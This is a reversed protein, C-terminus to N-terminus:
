DIRVAEGELMSLLKQQQRRLPEINSDIRQMLICGHVIALADEALTAAREQPYHVAFVKAYCARWDEFFRRIPLDFLDRNSPAELSLNALLCGDPYAVFFEEVAANFALLEAAGPQEAQDIHIFVHDVFFRHVRDMVEIALDEKSTFHYYLSGKTIGCARVIEDISTASFGKARFLITAQEAIQEKGIGKRLRKSAESILVL